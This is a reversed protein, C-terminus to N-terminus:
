YNQLVFNLCIALWTSSPFCSPILKSLVLRRGDSSCYIFYTPLYLLITCVKWIFWQITTPVMGIVLSLPIILYPGNPGYLQKALSWTVAASNLSQPMQGSWVNTGTPSLLIDRQRDVVSIMVVLALLMLMPSPLPFASCASVMILLLEQAPTKNLNQNDPTSIMWLISMGIFAGWIQTLFMIRPPVKLYQGIKLDGALYVSRAVVDHSWTSFKHLILFLLAYLLFLRVYLNAVPMGPNIAGGVMQMLQITAIGTGM